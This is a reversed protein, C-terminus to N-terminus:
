QGRMLGAIKGSLNKKLCANKLDRRSVKGLINKPFKEIFKYALPQQFDALNKFCYQKLKNVNRKKGKKWIIVAVIAEGLREDDVGIVCCDKIQPFKKIIEEVDEAYVNIGGVVIINKKRGALYLYNDQDLYGLDGTKFYDAYFSSKTMKKKNLYGSFVLPTKCAIEGIIGKRKSNNKDDIIKISIGPCAKGVSKTKKIEKNLHLNTVTGIESAGYWEYFNCRPFLNIKDKFNQSLKASTSVATKLSKLKSFYNKKSRFISEIQSSVLISFTVKYKKVKEAWIKETFNKLLVLTGGIILPVFILRQSLSHELPTSAIVTDKHNLNYLKKVSLSRLLKTKQTFIIPKPLGTSGSTLSIIYDNNLLNLNDAYKSNKKGEKLLDDFYKCNNIKDGVSILKNKFLKKYKNDFNIKKLVTYWSIIFKTKISLFNKIITSAPLTTNLPVIAAGIKAAALIIYIFEPSNHLVLGIKDGKRVGIDFLSASLNSVTKNLSNYSIKKEEFIIATKNKYKRSNVIIQQFINKSKQM